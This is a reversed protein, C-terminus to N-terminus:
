GGPALSNKRKKSISPFLGPCMRDPAPFAKRFSFEHHKRCLNSRLTATTAPCRCRKREVTRTNRCTATERKARGSSPFTKMAARLQGLLIATKGPRSLGTGVDRGEFIITGGNSSLIVSGTVALPSLTIDENTTSLTLASLLADPIQLSIIRNEDSPKGGIFDTWEKSDASTMTLVAQSSLSIDYTEKNNESYLIHIQNDESVAVDIRRDRVDIVIEAVQAPDATYEKQAFPESDGSCSAM